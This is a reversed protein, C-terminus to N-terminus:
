SQRSRVCDNVASRLAEGDLGKARGDRRCEALAALDPRKGNFCAVLAATRASGSLGQADIETKCAARATAATPKGDRTLGDRAYLQIGPFKAQMCVRMAGRLDDGSLAVHDSLCEQRAKARAARPIPDNADSTAAAAAPRPQATQAAIPQIALVSLSLGALVSVFRIM